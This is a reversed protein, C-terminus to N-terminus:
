GYETSLIKIYKKESIISKTTPKYMNDPNEELILQTSVIIRVHLAYNSINDGLAYKFNKM